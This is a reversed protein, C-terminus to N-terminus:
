CAFEIASNSHPKVRSAVLGSYLSEVIVLKICSYLYITNTNHPQPNFARAALHFLTARLPSLAHTQSRPEAPTSEASRALWRAAFFRQQRRALSRADQLQRGAECSQTCNLGIGSEDGVIELVQRFMPKWKTLGHLANTSARFYLRKGPTQYWNFSLFFRQKSM